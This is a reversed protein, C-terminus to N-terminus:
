AEGSTELTHGVSLVVARFGSVPRGCGAKTIPDGSADAAWGRSGVTGRAVAAAAERRVSLNRGHLFREWTGGDTNEHYMRITQPALLLRNWMHSDATKLTRPFSEEGMGHKPLLALENAFSCFGEGSWFGSTGGERGAAETTKSPEEQGMWVIELNQELGRRLPSHYFRKGGPQMGTQPARPVNRQRPLITHAYLRQPEAGAWASRESTKNAVIFRGTFTKISFPRSSVLFSNWLALMEWRVQVCGMKTLAQLPTYLKWTLSRIFSRGNQRSLSQGRPPGSPPPTFSDQLPSVTNSQVVDLVSNDDPAKM